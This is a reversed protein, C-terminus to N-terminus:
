ILFFRNTNNDIHLLHNSSGTPATVYIYRVKRIEVIELNEVLKEGRMNLKHYLKLM